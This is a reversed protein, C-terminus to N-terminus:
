TFKTGVEKNNVNKGDIYCVHGFLGSGGRDGWKVARETVRQRKMWRGRLQEQMYAWFVGLQYVSM